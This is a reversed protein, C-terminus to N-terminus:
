EARQPAGDIANVIAKAMEQYEGRWKKPRVYDQTDVFEGLIDLQNRTLFGSVVYGLGERRCRGTPRRLLGQRIEASQAEGNRIKGEIM